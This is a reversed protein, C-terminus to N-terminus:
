IRSVSARSPSRGASKPASTRKSAKRSSPSQGETPHETAAELFANLILMLVEASMDAQEAMVHAFEAREEEVVANNLFRALAANEGTFVAAVSYNNVGPRLHWVRGFLEVEPNPKPKAAPKSAILEAIRADIDIKSM